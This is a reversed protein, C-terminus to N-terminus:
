RASPRRDAPNRRASDVARAPRAEPANEILREIVATETEESAVALRWLKDATKPLFRFNKRATREVTM